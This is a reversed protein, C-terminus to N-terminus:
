ALLCFVKNELLICTLVRLGTDVGLLEFPLHLPFDVMPFRTRDPFGFRVPHSGQMPLLDLQFCVILDYESCPDLTGNEFFFM